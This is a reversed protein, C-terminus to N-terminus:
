HKANDVEKTLKSGCFLCYNIKKPVCYCNMEGIKLFLFFLNKKKERIGGEYFAEKFKECCYKM